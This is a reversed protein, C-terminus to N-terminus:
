VTKEDKKKQPPMFEDICDWVIRMRQMRRASLIVKHLGAEPMSLNNAKFHGGENDHKVAKGNSRTIM